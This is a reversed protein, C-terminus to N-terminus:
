SDQPFLIVLKQEPNKSSYFASVSITQPMIFTKVTVHPTNLADQQIFTNRENTNVSTRDCTKSRSEDLWILSSSSDPKTKKVDWVNLGKAGEEIGYLCCENGYRRDKSTCPQIALSPRAWVRDMTSFCLWRWVVRIREVVVPNRGFSNAPLKHQCRGRLWVWRHREPQGLYLNEHWQISIKWICVTYNANM